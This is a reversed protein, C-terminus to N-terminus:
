EDGDILKALEDDLCAVMGRAFTASRRVEDTADVIYTRERYIVAYAMGLIKGYKAEALMQELASVTDHAIKEPVVRLDARAKSIEFVNPPLKSNKKREARRKEALQSKCANRIMNFAFLRADENLTRWAEILERELSLETTPICGVKTM